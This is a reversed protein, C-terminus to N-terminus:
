FPLDDCDAYDIVISPHKIENEDVVTVFMEDPYILDNDEEDLKGMEDYYRMVYPAKKFEEAEELTEFDELGITTGCYHACVRYM